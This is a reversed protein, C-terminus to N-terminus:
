GATDVAIDQMVFIGENFWGAARTDKLLVIGSGLSYSISLLGPLKTLFPGLKYNNRSARCKDALYSWKELRGGGKGRVYYIGSSTNEEKRGRQCLLFIYWGL